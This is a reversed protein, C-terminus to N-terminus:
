ILGRQASNFYGTPLQVSQNMADFQSQGAAQFARMNAMRQQFRKEESDTEGDLASALQDSAYKAPDQVLGKVADISPQVTQMAYAGPNSFAEGVKDFGERTGKFRDGLMERMTNEDPTPLKEMDGEDSLLANPLGAATSAAAMIKNFM